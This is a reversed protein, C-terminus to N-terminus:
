KVLLPNMKKVEQIKEVGYNVDVRTTWIIVFTLWFQASVLYSGSFFLQIFINLFLFVVLNSKIETKFIHRLKRILVKALILSIFIGTLGFDNLIEIFINHPYYYFGMQHSFSGIGNGIIPSAKFADIARQYLVVRELSSQDGSLNFGSKMREIAFRYNQNSELFNFLGIMIVVIFSMMVIKRRNLLYKRMIVLFLVVIVVLSGRSGSFVIIAVNASILSLHYLRSFFSKSGVLKLLNYAFLASMTYGVMLHSAGAINNLMGLETSSQSLLSIAFCFTLYLNVFKLKQDIGKVDSWSVTLGLLTAPVTFSIFYKFIQPLFESQNFKSYSIMISVALLSTIILVQIKSTAVKFEQSRIKIVIGKFFMLGCVIALLFNFYILGQDGVEHQRSFLSLTGFYLGESFFVLIILWTKM